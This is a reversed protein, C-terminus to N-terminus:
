KTNNKNTANRMKLLKECSKCRVKKTNCEKVAIELEFFVKGCLSSALNEPGLYLPRMPFAHLKSQEKWPLWWEYDIMKVREIKTGREIIRWRPDNDEWWNM